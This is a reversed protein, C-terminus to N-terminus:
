SMSGCVSRQWRKGKKMARIATKVPSRGVGCSSGGGYEHEHYFCPKRNGSVRDELAFGFEKITVKVVDVIFGEPFTDITDALGSNNWSQLRLDVFLRHVAM